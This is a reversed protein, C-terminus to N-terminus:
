VKKIDTVVTSALAKSQVVLANLKVVDAAIAAKQFWILAAIGLGPLMGVVFGLWFMNKDKRPKPPAVEVIPSPAVPTAVPAPTTAPQVQPLSVPPPVPAPWQTPKQVRVTATSRDINVLKPKPKIIPAPVPAPLPPRSMACGGLLLVLGILLFRM